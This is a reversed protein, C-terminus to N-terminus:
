KASGAKDAKRALSEIYGRFSTLWKLDPLYNVWFIARWGPQGVVDDIRGEAKLVRIAEATTEPDVYWVQEESDDSLVLVRAMKPLREYEAPDTECGLDVRFNDLGLEEATQWELDEVPRFGPANISPMFEMGNSVLLFQKYDEPLTAGLREEAEEIASPSAPPKLLTDHQDWKLIDLKPVLVSWTTETFGEVSARWQDRTAAVAPRISRLAQKVVEADRDAQEATRGTVEAVVGTMALAVLPRWKAIYFTWFEAFGSRATDRVSVDM